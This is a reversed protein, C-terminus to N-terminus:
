RKAAKNTAVLSKLARLEELSDALYKVLAVSPEGRKLEAKAWAHRIRATEIELLLQERTTV